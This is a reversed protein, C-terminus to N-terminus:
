EVERALAIGKRMRRMGERTYERKESTWRCDRYIETTVDSVIKLVFSEGSEGNEAYGAPVLEEFAINWICKGLCVGAAANEGMAYEAQWDRTAEGSVSVANSQLVDDIYVLFGPGMTCDEAETACTYTALVPVVYVQAVGDYTCGNQVCVAGSWRLVETARLAELECETGGLAAPCVINVEVTVTM